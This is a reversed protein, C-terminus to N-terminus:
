WTPQISPNELLQALKRLAPLAVASDAVVGAGHGADLPILRASPTASALRVGHSFPIRTDTRGHFILWPVDVTRGRELNDFRNRMIIRTPVWPYRAAGADTLSTFAGETVLAGAGMRTALYTAPGSGLSWGYVAVRAPNVALTRTLHSWAARADTYLGDESPAGSHVAAGYGRYEVALVNFGAERLLRYRGVNSRSGIVGASGHLYLAWPRGASDDVRSTMLFVPVGDDATITMSDWPMHISRPVWFGAPFHGASVFVRSTETAALFGVACCYALLVAALAYKARRTM